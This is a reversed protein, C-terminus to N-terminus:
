RHGSRRRLRAAKPTRASKPAPSLQTLLDAAVREGQDVVQHWAYRMVRYGAARLMLDRNRDRYMQAPTSHAPGGDLEVVLRQERWLADVKFGCLPVNVDPLSIGHRECLAIFLQEIETATKALLPLHENLARRLAASGPRGPGLAASVATLDLLRRYDAEALIRRLQRHTLSAALDLLTQPVPTVPLRGHFVRVLLPRYHLRLGRQPRRHPTVLDIIAPAKESLQWWWGAAGHSLAVGPGAYLLGAALRGELPVARRGVAYVGPFM